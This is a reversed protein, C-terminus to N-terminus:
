PESREQITKEARHIDLFHGSPYGRQGLDYQEELKGALFAEFNNKIQLVRVIMKEGDYDSIHLVRRFMYLEDMTSPKFDKHKPKQDIIVQVDKKRANDKVVELM